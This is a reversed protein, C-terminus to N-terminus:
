GWSRSSPWSRGTTPRAVDIAAAVLGEKFAREFSSRAGAVNGNEWLQRGQALLREAREKRETSFPPPSPLPERIPPPGAVIAVSKRQGPLDVVELNTTAEALIAGDVAVLSIRVEARGPVGEPAIVELTALGFM